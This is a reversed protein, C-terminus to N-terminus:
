CTALINVVVVAQEIGFLGGCDVFEDRYDKNSIRDTEITLYRRLDEKANQLEETIFAYEM